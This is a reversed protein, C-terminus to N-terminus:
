KPHTLCLEGQVFSFLLFKTAPFESNITSSLLRTKVADFQTSFTRANFAHQRLFNSPQTSSLM